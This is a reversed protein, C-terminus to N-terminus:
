ANYLSFGEGRAKIRKDEILADLAERLKSRPVGLDESLRRRTVPTNSSELLNLISDQINQPRSTPQESESTLSVDVEYYPDGVEGMSFSIDISPYQGAMRFERNMAITTNDESQNDVADSNVEEEDEKSLYWASEIWGYLLISGMMRAGGRGQPNNGGKNYHHVVMVATHFENKLKLLWNLTPNLEKGSNLDGNFMLYLPDFVVLVPKVEKILKELDSRHSEENMIFGQQNLFYIPLEPPFGVKARKDGKIIVSGTLGRNVILKETRDKMIYEANENQVVIVPGPDLVPYKGLFPKGSAVSIILDHVLTSKFCKPMGAVIGHSRKGWFGKVLWGEFTRTNSMVEGYTTLKLGAGEERNKVSDPLKGSIIKELEKRLRLDEDHRGTYKNFKSNKILLIIEDAQMGLDYLSNEIMWITNSRDIGELNDLALLNRIKQPIDYKAYIKREGLDHSGSIRVKTKDEGWPPSDGSGVLKKINKPKYIQNSQKPLGVKPHNKYKHNRTGPIRYVHTFDFCDDCGIHKALSKNLPTYESEKIYRDLEWLGQYKNPSSEWLYTPQPNLQNLNAIEDIDQAMFKTDLSHAIQRTPKSYPMPSWYLDWQNPSFEQLFNALKRKINSSQYKIPYEKWVKSKKASLIIYDGEQCQLSYIHLLFELSNM